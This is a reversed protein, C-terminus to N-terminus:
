SAGLPLGRPTECHRRAEVGGDNRAAFRRLLGSLTGKGGFPAEIGTRKVVRGLFAGSPDRL